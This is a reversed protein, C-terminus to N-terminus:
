KKKKPKKVCKGKKLKQGKKCKKPPTPTVSPALPTQPVTGGGGGGGGPPPPTADNLLINVASNPIPFFNTIALDLNGGNFQDAVIGNPINQGVNIPSGASATFDGAGNGFLVVVRSNPGNFGAGAAIDANADGNFDATALRTPGQGVAGGPVPEPSTGAPTFNGDGVGILIAINNANRNAVALDNFANSGFQGLAVDQANGGGGHTDETGQFALDGLTNANTMTRTTGTFERAIVVDNSSNNDVPGVAINALNDSGPAGEDTTETALATFDGDNDGDNILVTVQGQFFRGAVIDLNGDMDADMDAIAIQSQPNGLMEDLPAAFDGTGDNLLISVNTGAVALDEDGDGDLDGVAVDGAGPVAEPSGLAPVFNGTGDGLLVTVSSSGSNAIALDAHADANFHGSDIGSGTHGATEPSTGPQSFEGPVAWAAAPALLLAAGALM